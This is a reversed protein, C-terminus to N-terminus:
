TLMRATLSLSLDALDPPGEGRLCALVEAVEVANGAAAGLPEDMATVLASVRRGMRTGVAVMTRALERAAPLSRMFAGEGCKVDLVLARTNEALKKSLISAAILPVSPVTATVDRLAYLRRDVPALEATQGIISCGCREVVGLFEDMSLNTRYGPISELKDLTGGTIGLGRGSIMPVALGACAALPAVILSTKDGIGGTSHKDAAPRSLRATDLTRGSQLMAETLCATEDLTMGRFFVAMALAAMQYDPIRERGYESIFFAIEDPRLAHGDRKKEIIWQPLM